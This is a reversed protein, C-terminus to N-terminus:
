TAPNLTGSGSDVAFTVGINALPQGDNGAVKVVFPAANTGAVITQSDGSVPTLRTPGTPATTNSVCAVAVIAAIPLCLSVRVVASQRNMCLGRRAHRPFRNPPRATLPSPRHAITGSQSAQTEDETPRAGM